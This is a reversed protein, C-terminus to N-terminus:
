GQSSWVLIFSFQHHLEGTLIIPWNHQICGAMTELLPRQRDRLVLQQGGAEVRGAGRELRFQGLGLEEAGRGLRLLGDQGGLPYAPEFFRRYLQRLRQRDEPRRFRAKYLIHLYRGPGADGDRRIASCWRIFLIM